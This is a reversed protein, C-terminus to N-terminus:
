THSCFSQTKSSDKKRWAHEKKRTERREKEKSGNQNWKMDTQTMINVAEVQIGKVKKRKVVNVGRVGGKEGMQGKDRDEQIGKLEHDLRKHGYRKMTEPQFM